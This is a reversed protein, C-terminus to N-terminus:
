CTRKTFHHQHLMWLQDPLYDASEPPAEHITQQNQSWRIWDRVWEHFSILNGAKGPDYIKPPRQLVDSASRDDVMQPQPEPVETVSQDDAKNRKNNPLIMPEDQEDQNDTPFGTPDFVFNSPFPAGGGDDNDDDKDPFLVMDENDSDDKISEDNDFHSTGRRFLNPMNELPLQSPPNLPQVVQAPAPAVPQRNQQQQFYQSCAPSKAFHTNIGRLGHFMKRKGNRTPCTPNRCLITTITPTSKRNM